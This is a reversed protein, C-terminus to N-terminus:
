RHVLRRKGTEGARVVGRPEATRSCICTPFIPPASTTPLMIAIESTAPALIPPVLPASYEYTRAM